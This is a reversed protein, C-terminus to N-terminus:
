CHLDYYVEKVIKLIKRFYSIPLLSNLTKVELLTSYTFSDKFSYKIIIDSAYPQLLVERCVTIRENLNFAKSKATPFFDKKLTKLKFSSELFFLKKLKEAKALDLIAILFYSFIRGNDNVKYLFFNQEKISNNYYFNEVFLYKNLLMLNNNVNKRRRIYIM